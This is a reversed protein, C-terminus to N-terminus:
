NNTQRQETKQTEQQEDNELKDSKDKDSKGKKHLIICKTVVFTILWYSLADLLKVHCM